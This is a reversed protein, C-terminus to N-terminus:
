AQTDCHAPHRGEYERMDEGEQHVGVAQVNGVQHERHHADEAQQEVGHADRLSALARQLFYLVIEPSSAREGDPLIMGAHHGASFVLDIRDFPAMRARFTFCYFSLTACKLKLAWSLFKLTKLIDNRIM